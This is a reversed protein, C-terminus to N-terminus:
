TGDHRRVRYEVEYDSKKAVANKWVQATHEVDDPHLAKAWGWGKIEERSQGTYQRWTPIDEEVEGDANTTWGLQGTLEIFSRYRDRSARLLEDTQKRETIDSAIVFVGEPVPYARVEFWGTRGDEFTFSDSVVEPKGTKAVRKYAKFFTSKEVGPFVDTIRCGLLEKRSKGTMKEIAENILVYRWQHDLVAIGDSISGILIGYKEESWRTNEEEHKIRGATNKSIANRSYQSSKSQKRDPQKVTREQKSNLKRQIKKGTSKGAAM